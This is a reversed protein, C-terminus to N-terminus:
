MKRLLILLICKELYYYSYIIIKKVIVETDNHGNTMKGTMLVGEDKNYILLEVFDNHELDNTEAILRSEM